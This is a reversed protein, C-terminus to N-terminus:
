AEGLARPDPPVMVSGGRQRERVLEVIAITVLTAAASLALHLLVGRGGRDKM